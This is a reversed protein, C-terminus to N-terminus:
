LLLASLTSKHLWQMTLMMQNCKYKTPRNNCTPGVDNLVSKHCYTKM